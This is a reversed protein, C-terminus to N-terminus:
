ANSTTVCTWFFESRFLVDMDKTFILDVLDVVEIGIPPRYLSTNFFGLFRYTRSRDLYITALVDTLLIM